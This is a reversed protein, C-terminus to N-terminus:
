AQFCDQPLQSRGKLRYLGKGNKIFLLQPCDDKGIGLASGVDIEMGIDLKVAQKSM